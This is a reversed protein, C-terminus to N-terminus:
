KIEGRKRPKAEGRREMGARENRLWAASYPSHKAIEPVPVGAAILKRSVGAADDRAREGARVTANLEDLQEILAAVQRDKSASM